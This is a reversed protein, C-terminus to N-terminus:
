SEKKLECCGIWLNIGIKVDDLLALRKSDTENGRGKQRIKNSNGHIVQDTFTM